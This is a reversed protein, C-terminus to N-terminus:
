DWFPLSPQYVGRSGVLIKRGAYPGDEAFVVLIGETTYIVEADCQSAIEILEKLGLQAFFANDARDPLAQAAFRVLNCAFLTLQEQVQLGAASRTRYHRGQGPGKYDSFGAEIDQRGYFDEAAEVPPRGDPPYRVLTSYRDKGDCTQQWLLLLQWAYPSDGIQTRRALRVQTRRYVPYWEPPNEEQCLAEALTHTHAKAELDYGEEVLFHLNAWTGFGGNLRWRIRRPCPNQANEEEMRAIRAWLVARQEACAQARATHQAAIREATQIQAQTDRCRQQWHRRQRQLAQQQAQLPAEASHRLARRVRRLNQEVEKWHAEWRALRERGQEAQQQRHSAWVRFRQEQAELAAAQPRLLEVRRRPRGLRQEALVVLEQLCDCSVVHGPHHRGGLFYRCRRGRFSVVAFQYGKQVHGEVFGFSADPYHSYDSVPLGTLDADLRIGGPQTLLWAIEERLFRDSFTELVERLAQVHAETLSALTRSIQSAHALGQPQDWARAVAQDKSLPRAAQHLDKVYAYHGLILILLTVVKDVPDHQV